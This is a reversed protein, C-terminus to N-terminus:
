FSQPVGLPRVAADPQARPRPLRGSFHAQGCIPSPLPLMPRKDRHVRRKTPIQKLREQMIGHQNSNNKWIILDGSCM